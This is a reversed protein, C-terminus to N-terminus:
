TAIVTKPTKSVIIELPRGTITERVTADAYEVFFKAFCFETTDLARKIETSIEHMIDSTIKANGADTSKIKM